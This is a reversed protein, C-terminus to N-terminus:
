IWGVTNHGFIDSRHKFNLHNKNQYDQDILESNEIAQLISM